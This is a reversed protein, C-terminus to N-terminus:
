LSEGADTNTPPTSVEKDKILKNLLSLANGIQPKEAELKIAQLENIQKILAQTDDSSENSIRKLNFLTQKLALQYVVTNHNLVAWQAEQLNLYISERLLSEFLPSMFPSIGEDDHRIIVLKQLFNISDTLRARWASANPPTQENTKPQRMDTGALVPRTNLHIQVADLQSLIGAIDLVPVAKLQTMEQAVAQRVELIKPNNIQSLLGDAEQLLATSTMYNDSWHVNIQAMELLYRAKLLLWDQTQYLRENMAKTVILHLQKLQVNMASQNHEITQAALHSQTKSNKQDKKLDSLTISLSKQEQLLTDHLEHYLRFSSIAVILSLLALCLSFASVYVYRKRHTPKDQPVKTSVSEPTSQKAQQEISNTM